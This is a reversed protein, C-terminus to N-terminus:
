GVETRQAPSVEKQADELEALMRIAYAHLKKDYGKNRAEEEIRALEAARVPPPTKPSQAGAPPHEVAAMIGELAKATDPPLLSSRKSFSRSMHPSQPQRPSSPLSNRHPSTPMLPNIPAPDFTDSRPSATPLEFEFAFGAAAPQAPASSVKDGSAAPLTGFVPDDSLQPSTTTIQPPPAKRSSTTSSDSGASESSVTPSDVEPSLYSQASLSSPPLNPTYRQGLNPSPQLPSNRQAPSGYSPQPSPSPSRGPSSSYISSTAPSADQNGDKNKKSKKGGASGGGGLKKFWGMKKKGGSGSAAASAGDEIRSSGNTDMAGFGLGLLREAKNSPASRPSETVMTITSRSRTLSGEGGHRPTGNVPTVPRDLAASVDALDTSDNAAAVAANLLPELEDHRKKIRDLRTQM